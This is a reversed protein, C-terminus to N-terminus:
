YLRVMSIDVRALTLCDDTDSAHLPRKSANSGILKRRKKPRERELECPEPSSFTRGDLFAVLNDPAQDSNNNLLEAAGM